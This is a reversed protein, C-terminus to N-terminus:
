RNIANDAQDFIRAALLLFDFLIFNNIININNNSNVSMTQETRSFGM